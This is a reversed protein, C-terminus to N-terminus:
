RWTPCSTPHTSPRAARTAGGGGAPAGVVVAPPSAFSLHSLRQWVWIVSAPQAARAAASSLPASGAIRSKYRLPMRALSAACAATRAASAVDFAARTGEQSRPAYEPSRLSYMGATYSPARATRLRGCRRQNLERVGCWCPTTSYVGVPLIPLLSSRERCKVEEGELAMGM